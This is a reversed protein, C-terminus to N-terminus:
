DTRDRLAAVTVARYMAGTDLLRWGLREALRRSVTSKGAGAPGDITMVRMSSRGRLNSGSGDPRSLVAVAGGGPPRHGRYLVGPRRRLLGPPRCPSTARDGAPAISSCPTPIVRVAEDSYGTGAGPDPM